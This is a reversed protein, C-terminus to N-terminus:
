GFGVKLYKVLSEFVELMKWAAHVLICYKWWLICLSWNSACYHVKNMFCSCFSDTYVAWWDLQCLHRVFPKVYSKYLLENQEHKMFFLAMSVIKGKVSMKFGFCLTYMVNAGFHSPFLFTKYISLPWFVTYLGLQIWVLSSVYMMNNLHM